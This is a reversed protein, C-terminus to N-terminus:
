CYEGHTRDFISDFRLWNNILDAGKLWIAICNDEHPVTFGNCVWWVKLITGPFSGAFQVHITLYTSWEFLFASMKIIYTKFAYVDGLTTSKIFRNGEKM